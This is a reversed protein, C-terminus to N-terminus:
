RSQTNQRQKKPLVKGCRTCFVDIASNNMGCYPCKIFKPIGLYYQQLLPFLRYLYYGIIITGPIVVIGFILFYTGYESDLLMATFIASIVVGVTLLMIILGIRGLAELISEM